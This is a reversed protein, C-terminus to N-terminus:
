RRLREKRASHLSLQVGSCTRLKQSFLVTLSVTPPPVSCPPLVPRGSGGHGKSSVNSAAKWVKAVHTNSCLGGGGGKTGGERQTRTHAQTRSQTQARAHTHTPNQVGAVRHTPGRGIVPLGRPVLVSHIVGRLSGRHARERGRGEGGMRWGERGGEGGRQWYRPRLREHDTETETEKQTGTHLIVPVQDSLAAGRGWDARLLSARM